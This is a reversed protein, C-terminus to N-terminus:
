MTNSMVLATVALGVTMTAIMIGLVWRGFLLAGETKLAREMLTEIHGNVDIRVHRELANVKVAIEVLLDHDEMNHFRADESTM